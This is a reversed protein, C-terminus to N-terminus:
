ARVLAFWRYGVYVMGAAAPVVCIWFPLKFLFFMVIGCGVAVAGIGFAWIDFVAVDTADKELANQPRGRVARQRRLMWVDTVYSVIEELLGGIFGSM